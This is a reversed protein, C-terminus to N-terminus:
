VYLVFTLSKYYEPDVAELDEMKLPRGLIMKYVPLTFGTDIFKGHFIALGM